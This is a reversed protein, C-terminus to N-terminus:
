VEKGEEEMIEDDGISVYGSKYAARAVTHTVLPNLVAIIIVILLLKGSFFSIGHRMVLGIALTLMGVTDSKCAILIRFYFDKRPMFMGIVGVLMFIIGIGMVIYSAVRM